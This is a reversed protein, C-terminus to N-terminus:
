LREFYQPDKKSVVIFYWIFLGVVVVFPVWLWTYRVQRMVSQGREPLQHCSLDYWYGHGNCAEETLYRAEYNTDDMFQTFIMSFPKLTVYM